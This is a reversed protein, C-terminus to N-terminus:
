ESNPAWARGSTEERLFINVGLSNHGGSQFCHARWSKWYMCVKLMALISMPFDMPSNTLFLWSYWAVRTFSYIWLKRSFFYLGTFPYKWNMNTSQQGEM